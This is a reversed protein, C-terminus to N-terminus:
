KTRCKSNCDSTQGTTSARVYFKCVEIFTINKLNDIAINKSEGQCAMKLDILHELSYFNDLKGYECVLKFKVQEDQEIKDIILCALVKADRNTRDVPHIKVGVCDYLNFNNAENNLSDHYHKLKKNIVNM